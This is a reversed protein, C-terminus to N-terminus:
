SRANNHQMVLSDGSKIFQHKKENKKVEKNM